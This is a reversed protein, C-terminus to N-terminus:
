RRLAAGSRKKLPRDYVPATKMSQPLRAICQPCDRCVRAKTKIAFYDRKTFLFQKIVYFDLTITRTYLHILSTFSLKNNPIYM